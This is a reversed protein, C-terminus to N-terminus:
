WDIVCETDCDWCHAVKNGPECIEKTGQHVTGANYNAVSCPKLTCTYVKSNWWVGIEDM